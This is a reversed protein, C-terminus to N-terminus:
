KSSILKGDIAIATGDTSPIFTVETTQSAECYYADWQERWQGGSDPPSIVRTDYVLPAMDCKNDPRSRRYDQVLNFVAAEVHRQVRPTALSHGFALMSVYTKTDQLVAFNLRYNKGCGIAGIHEIAFVGNQMVPTLPLTEPFETPKIKMDSPIVYDKMDAPLLDYGDDTLTVNACAGFYRKLRVDVGDIALEENIRAAYATQGQPGTLSAPRPGLSSLVAFAFLLGSM